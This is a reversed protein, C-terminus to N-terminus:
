FYVACFKGTYFLNMLLFAVGVGGSYAHVTIDSYRATFGMILTDSAGVGLGNCFVGLIKLETKTPLAMLLLGATFCLFVVTNVVLQPIREVFYPLIAACLAYPLFSVVLILSSPYSTGSLLDETALILVTSMTAEAFGFVFFAAINILKEESDENQPLDKSATKRATAMKEALNIKSRVPVSSLEPQSNLM